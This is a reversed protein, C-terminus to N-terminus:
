FTPAVAMAGPLRDLYEERAIETAGLSRLHDTVWQVDLLRGPVDCMRRVLEVLAVKSADRECHFMSEGAFFGGIQVGYLGGVLAGSASWVEVSHAFGLVHLETYAALFAPTIWGQERSGDGCAAIVDGFAQDATVTYRACSKRLSRSVRLGDLPLIGRPDPSWWGLPGGPEVDMPFLGRGYAHLVTGPALDAGIAILDEGAPASRPDPLDWLNPLDPWHPFPTM